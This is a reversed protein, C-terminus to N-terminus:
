LTQAITLGSEQQKTSDLSFGQLEQACPLATRRLPCCEHSGECAIGVLLQRACRERRAAGLMQCSDIGELARVNDRQM